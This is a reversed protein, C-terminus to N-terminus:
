VYGSKISSTDFHFVRTYEAKEKREASGERNKESVVDYLSSSLTRPEKTMNEWGLSFHCDLSVAAVPRKCLPKRKMAM